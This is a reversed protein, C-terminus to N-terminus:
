TLKTHTHTDDHEHVDNTYIRLYNYMNIWQYVLIKGCPWRWDWSFRNPKNYTGGMPTMLAGLCFCPSNNMRSRFGDVKFRRKISVFPEFDTFTAYWTIWNTVKRDGLQLDSIIRQTRTVNGGDLFPWWCVQWISQNEWGSTSATSWGTQKSFFAHSGLSFTGWSDM